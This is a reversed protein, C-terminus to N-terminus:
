HLSSPPLLARRYRRAERPFRRRKPSRRARREDPRSTLTAASGRLGLKPSVGSPMASASASQSASNANPARLSLLAIALVVPAFAAALRSPEAEGVPFGSRPASSKGRNMQTERGGLGMSRLVAQPTGTSRRIRPRTRATARA